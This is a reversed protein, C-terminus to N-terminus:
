VPELCAEGGSFPSVVYLAMDVHASVNHSATWRWSCELGFQDGGMELMPKRTM